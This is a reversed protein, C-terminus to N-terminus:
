NLLRQSHKCFEFALPQNTMDTKTVDTGLLECFTLANCLYDTHLVQIVDRVPVILDGVRWDFQRPVLFVRVCGRQLHRLTVTVPHQGAIMGTRLRGHEDSAILQPRKGIRAIRLPTVADPRAKQGQVIARLTFARDVMRQEGSGHDLCPSEDRRDPGPQILGFWPLLLTSPLSGHRDACLCALLRDSRTNTGTRLWLEYVRNPRLGDAAVYICEGVDFSDRATAGDDLLRLARRKTAALRDAGPTNRSSAV